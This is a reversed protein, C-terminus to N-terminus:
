LISNVYSIMQPSMWNIGAVDLKRLVRGSLDIFYSEPYIFTGYDEHIQFDRATLFAPHFTQLFRQYANLDRDVSVGLVVVGKDAFQQAFANLSPTEEVCPQCWSAWFHLVLLKGGFNHVSLTRGDDTTITFDPATDGAVVVREHIAAYLVYILVVSLLGVAVRLFRDIKVSRM